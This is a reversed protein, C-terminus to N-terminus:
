CLSYTITTSKNNRTTQKNKRKNGKKSQIKIVCKHHVTKTCTKYPYNRSHYYSFPIGPLYIFVIGSSDHEYSNTPRVSAYFDLDATLIFLGYLSEVNVKSVQIVIRIYFALNICFTVCRHRM